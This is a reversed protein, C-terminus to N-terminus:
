GVVQFVGIQRRETSCNGLRMRLGDHAGVVGNITRGGAGAVHQKPVVQSVCPVEVAVDHAIAGSDGVHVSAVVVSRVHGVGGSGCHLRSGIQFAAETFPLRKRCQHLSHVVLQNGLSFQVVGQPPQEPRSELEPHEIWRLAVGIALNWEAFNIRGFMPLKRQLSRAFRNDQQLIFTVGKRELSIDRTDRDHARRRFENLRQLAVVVARWWRRHIRDISDLLPKGRRLNRVGLPRRQYGARGHWNLVCCQM